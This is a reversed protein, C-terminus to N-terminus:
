FNFYLFVDSRTALMATCATGFAMGAFVTKWQPNLNRVFQNTNPLALAVFFAALIAVAATDSDIIVVHSSGSNSAGQGFMTRLISNAQAVSDARFYVWGCHVILFTIAWRAPNPLRVKLRALYREAVLVAGHVAGWIVFTWGAGHWIGGLLFTTFLNASVRASSRCGGGLPIYVYDRLFSSLTMHWRRWFDQVSLSKYPSNFNQPLRIGFMRAAGIAMDTYGSFDFYLQFTYSLTAIWTDLVTLNAYDAFGQDAYVALQDAIVLKKFLGIGFIVIGVYLNKWRLIGISPSKFQPMMEHHHVIPGAILQPFFTVFVLYNLFRTPRAIRKYSDVLFAIQQFTFFSIALPLAISLPQIFSGTVDNLIGVAFGLYKFFGLLGLNFLIGAVLPGRAAGDQGQAAMKHRIARAVLFNVCVSGLLIPLYDLRWYAYFFLSCAAIWLLKVDANRLRAAAYFGLLSLPLFVFM